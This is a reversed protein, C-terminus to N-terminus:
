VCFEGKFVSAVPGTMWVDDTDSLTSGAWEIVLEGGPLQLAMKSDALGRLRAAVMAACAGTGCALTEGAGREWVRLVGSNRSTIELVEVNTRKPYLSTHELVPGWKELPVATVFDVLFVLHPNGMSVAVGDQLDGERLPIHLIDTEEALPIDQWHFRPVGMNVRIAKDGARECHLVGANTEITVIAKETEEMVLWAVCRTANGCADVEGGDANYLRMFVDAKPSIELLVIQDCGVGHRRHALLMREKEGLAYAGSRNDIVVFDNGAGHMKLFPIRISYINNDM